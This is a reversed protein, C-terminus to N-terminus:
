SPLLLLRLSLWLLTSSPGVCPVSASVMSGGKQEQTLTHAQQELRNIIEMRRTLHNKLNAIEREYKRVTTETVRDRCAKYTIVTQKWEAIKKKQLEIYSKLQDVREIRPKAGEIAVQVTAPQVGRPSLNKSSSVARKLASVEQQLAVQQSQLQVITAQASQHETNGLTDAASFRHVQAQLDSVQKALDSKEKTV